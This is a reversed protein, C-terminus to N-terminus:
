HRRHQSMQYTIPLKLFSYYSPNFLWEGFLKHKESIQHDVKIVVSHTTQGSAYSSQYNNCLTLCGGSAVNQQRPDLFNPAPYQNILWATVPDIRDAPIRTALSGGANLFPRRTFTGLSPDYVTTMPDYIGYQVV